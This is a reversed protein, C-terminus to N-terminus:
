IQYDKIFLFKNYTHRRTQTHTRTHPISHTGNYYNNQQPIHAIQHPQRFLCVNNGCTTTQEYSSTTQTYTHTHTLSDDIDYVERYTEEHRKKVEVREKERGREIYMETAILFVILIIEMYIFYKLQNKTVFYFYFHSTCVHSM